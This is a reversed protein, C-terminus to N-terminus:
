EERKEGCHSKGNAMLVGPALDTCGVPPLFLM